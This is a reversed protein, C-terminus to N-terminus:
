SSKPPNDLQEIQQLLGDIIKETSAIDNDITASLDSEFSPNGQVLNSLRERCKRLNSLLERASELSRGLERRFTDDNSPSAATTIGGVRRDGQFTGRPEGM